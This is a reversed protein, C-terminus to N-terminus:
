NTVCPFSVWLLRPSRDLLACAMTQVSQHAELMASSLPGSTPSSNRPTVGAVCDISTLSHDCAWTKEIRICTRYWRQNAWAFVACARAKDLQENKILWVMLPLLRPRNLNQKCCTALFEILAIKM